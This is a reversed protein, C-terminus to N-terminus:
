PSRFSFQVGPWGREHARSLDVGDLNSIVVERLAYAPYPDSLVAFSLDPRVDPNLSRWTSWDAVPSRLLRDVHESDAM